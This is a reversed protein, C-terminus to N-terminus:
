NNTKEYNNLNPCCKDAKCQCYKLNYVHLVILTIAPFYIVYETLSFLHINENLVIALLFAWTSWMTYKMWIKSSNKSSQYIAFFSVFLFLFDLSSWWSPSSECCASSCSKALFLFPTAICHIMCLTSAIIGIKDTTLTTTTM